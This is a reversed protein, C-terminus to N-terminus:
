EGLSLPLDAASTKVGRMLRAPDFGERRALIGVPQPGLEGDRITTSPDYSVVSLGATRAHTVLFRELTLPAQVAIGVGQCLAAVTCTEDSGVVDVFVDTASASARGFGDGVKMGYGGVSAIAVRDLAMHGAGGITIGGKGAFQVRVDSMVVDATPPSADVFSAIAEGLTNGFIARRIELRPTGKISLGRGGALGEGLDQLEGRLSVLDEIVVSSRGGIFLNEPNMREVLVRELTSRKCAVAAGLSVKTISADGTVMLDRVDLTAEDACSIAHDNAHLVRVASADLQARQSVVLSSSVLVLHDATAIARDTLLIGPVWPGHVRVAELTLRSAGAVHLGRLGAEISTALQVDEFSATITGTLVTGGDLVVSHLLELRTEGAAELAIGGPSAIATRAVRLSGGRASVASPGRALVADLACAGRDCSIPMEALYVAEFRNGDLHVMRANGHIITEIACAGIVASGPALPADPWVYDGRELAIAPAQRAIAAALDGLPSARSGDGSGGLSVFVTGAPLNAPLACAAIPECTGHAADDLTQPCRPVDCEELVLNHGLGLVVREFRSENWGVPCPWQSPLAPEVPPTPIPPTPCPLVCSSESWCGDLAACAEAEVGKLRLAAAFAPLDQEDRWLGEAAGSDDIAVSTLRSAVPLPRAFPEAPVVFAIEGTELAYRDLGLPLSLAYIRTTGEPVEFRDGRNLPRDSAFARTPSGEVVLIVSEAERTTAPIVM